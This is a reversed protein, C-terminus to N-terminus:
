TALKPQWPKRERLMANLITLLKRMCAVIAVKFPKGAARLKQYHACIIPNSRTATFTAMYLARRVPARGGIIMRKGRFQGSDRNMPALGVLAAGQQRSCTGLEPLEVVLVRATQPGIGPVTQLLDLKERWAPSKALEEDIERDLRKLRKDIFEISSLLDSHVRRGRAQHLRNSEMTRMEILQSRRALLERLKLVHEDPLPRQPPQVAHAFRALVLADITDTKALLGLAKAFDRVQRPNVVVVPLEAAVLAAVLLREYGGTAELVLRKISWPKLLAMLAQYGETTNTFQQSPGDLVQVDLREKSVDIGVYRDTM